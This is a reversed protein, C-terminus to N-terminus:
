ILLEFCKGGGEDGQQLQLDLNPTKSGLTRGMIGRRAGVVAVTDHSTEHSTPLNSSEPLSRVGGTSSSFVSLPESVLM